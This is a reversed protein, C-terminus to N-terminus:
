DHLIERWILKFFLVDFINLILSLSLSVENELESLKERMNVTSQENDKKSSVNIYEQDFLVSSGNDLAEVNNQGAPGALSRGSWLKKGSTLM